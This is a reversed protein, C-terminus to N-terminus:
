QCYKVLNGYSVYQLNRLYAIFYILSSRFKEEDYYGHLLIGVGNAYEKRIEVINENNEFNVQKQETIQCMQFLFILQM